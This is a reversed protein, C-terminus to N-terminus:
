ALWWLRDEWPGAEVEWVGFLLQPTFDPHLRAAVGVKLVQGERVLYTRNDRHIWEAIMRWQM